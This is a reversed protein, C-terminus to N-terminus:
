PSVVRHDGQTKQAWVEGLGEDSASVTSLCHLHTHAPTCTHTDTITRVSLYDRIHAQYPNGYPGTASIRLSKHIASQAPYQYVPFLGQEFM